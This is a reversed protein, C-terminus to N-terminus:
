ALFSSLLIRTTSNCILGTRIDMHAPDHVTYIHLISIQLIVLHIAQQRTSRAYLLANIFSKCLSNSCSATHKKVRGLAVIRWLKEASEVTSLALEEAATSAHLLKM